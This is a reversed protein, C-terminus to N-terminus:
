EYLTPSLNKMAQIASLIKALKKSQAVGRGVEKGNIRASALYRLHPNVECESSQESNQQTLDYKCM